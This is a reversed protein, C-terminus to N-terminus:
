FPIIDTETNEEFSQDTESDSDSNSNSAYKQFSRLIVSGQKGDKSMQYEGSISILDGISLVKESNDANKNFSVVNIWDTHQENKYFTNIAIDFSVANESIRRPKNGLRGIANVKNINLSTRVKNESSENIKLIQNFIIDTKYITKDEKTYSSNSMKGYCLVLDGKKLESVKNLDFCACNNIYQVKKIWEGQADKYNKTVALNFTAVKDNVKPDATLRGSINLISNNM